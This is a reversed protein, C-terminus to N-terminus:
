AIRPRGIRNRRQAVQGSSLCSMSGLVLVSWWRGCRSGERHIPGAQTLYKSVTNRNVCMECAVHRISLGEALVNHRVVHVQAM